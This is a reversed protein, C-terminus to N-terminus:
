RGKDSLTWLPMLSRWASTSNTRTPESLFGSGGTQPGGVAVPLILSLAGTVFKLFPAAKKFWDRTLEIEYVGQKSDAGNILPLPQRSHECWLTLEFKTSTWQRPNFSSRNVPVISFLRPGEKAEDTLGAILADFTAEAMSLLQAQRADVQDFRGHLARIEVLIDSNSIMETAPVPRAAPANHLLSDIDQWTTCVPCPYKPFNQRKSDILQEVNYLGTGPEERGCPQICPVMVDCRLGDWIDGVLFRVEETLMALFREPYAARVTIHIDNDVHRLLARGNYDADLMLGRQWHVSNDYHERGLSYKHLRVILWYFLGEANASNNKQDVIRCIQMQQLDGASAEIPWVQALKEEPRTGSVLQAILSIPDDQSQSLGAVRYSLDYREM